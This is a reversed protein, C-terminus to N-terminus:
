SINQEKTLSEEKNRNTIDRAEETEMDSMKVDLDEEDKSTATPDINMEKAKREGGAQSM